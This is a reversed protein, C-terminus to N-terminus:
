FVFDDQLPGEALRHVRVADLKVFRVLWRGEELPNVGEGFNLSPNVMLAVVQQRLLLPRLDCHSQSADIVLVLGRCLVPHEFTTNRVLQTVLVPFDAQHGILRVIHKQM